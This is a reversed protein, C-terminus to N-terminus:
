VKEENEMKENQLLQNFNIKNKMEEDNKMKELHNL